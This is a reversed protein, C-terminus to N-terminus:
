LNFKHTAWFRCSFQGELLGGEEQRMSCQKCLHTIYFFQHLIDGRRGPQWTLSTAHKLSKWQLRGVVGWVCFASLPCCLQQLKALLSCRLTLWLVQKQLLSCRGLWLLDGWKLAVLEKPCITLLSTSFPSTSFLRYGKSKTNVFFTVPHCVNEPHISSAAESIIFKQRSSWESSLTM